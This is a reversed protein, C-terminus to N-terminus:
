IQKINNAREWERLEKYQETNSVYVNRFKMWRRIKKVYDNVVKKQKVIGPNIESNNKVSRKKNKQISSTGDKDSDNKKLNIKTKDDWFKMLDEITIDEVANGQKDYITVLKAELQYKGTNSNLQEYKRKDLYMYKKGHTRPIRVFIFDNDQSVLLGKNITFIYGTVQNDITAAGNYYNNENASNSFKFMDVNDRVNIERNNKKKYDKLIMNGIRSYLKDMEVNKINVIDKDGSKSLFRNQYDNIRELVNIYENFYNQIESDSLIKGIITDIAKKYPKMVYSNYSLRGTKPLINHLDAIENINKKLADNGVAKILEHYLEDKKRFIKNKIELDINQVEERIHLLETAIVNKVRRLEAETLKGRARSKDKEIWNLHVHPHLTDVHRNAWWLVNNLDIKLTKCIKPMCCDVLMKYDAVEELGFRSVADEDSFSIVTEWWIDGKKNFLSTLNKEFNKKDEKKLWGSGESTFTYEDKNVYGLYGGEHLTELEKDKENKKEDETYNYYGVLATENLIGKFRSGEPAPKGYEFFRVKSINFLEAM